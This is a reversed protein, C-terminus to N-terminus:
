HKIQKRWNQRHKINTHYWDQNFNTPEYSEEVQEPLDNVMILYRLEHFKIGSKNKSRTIM